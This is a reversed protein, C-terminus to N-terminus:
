GTIGIVLDSSRRFTSSEARRSRAVEWHMTSLRKVVETAELRALAAGVCFHAGHGFALHSARPRTPDFRGPHSFVDGDRNAAGLLVIAQDGASIRCDSLQVDEIAVRGTVQVPSDWRLVEEVVDGAFAPEQRVREVCDPNAALALTANGILASTTEHGAALLLLAMVVAEDPELRDLLVSLLDDGPKASRDAVVPVLALMAAFAASTAQEQAEVPALLDLMATMTPTQERLVHAIDVGVDFLEAIVALPVPYAIEGLLDVEDGAALGEFAADVIASVRCRMQEVRRPTFFRNVAGRLRDHEPPDAFLLMKDFMGADGAGMTMRELLAPNRRPDSSWSDGGLVALAHEHSLVLWANLGDHWQVPGHEREREYAPYPDDAPFPWAPMDVVSPENARQTEAAM